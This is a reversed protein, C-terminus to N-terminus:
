DNKPIYGSRLMVADIENRPIEPPARVSVEYHFVDNSNVIVPGKGHVAVLIDMDHAAIAPIGGVRTDELQYTPM